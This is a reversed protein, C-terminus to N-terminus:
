LMFGFIVQEPDGSKLEPANTTIIANEFHKSATVLTDVAKKSAKGVGGGGSTLLEEYLEVFLKRGRNIIVQVGELNEIESRAV